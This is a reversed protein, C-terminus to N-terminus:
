NRNEHSYVEITYNLIIEYELGMKQAKIQQAVEKAKKYPIVNFSYVKTDDEEVHLGYNQLFAITEPNNEGYIYMNVDHHNLDIVVLDELIGKRDKYNTYSM